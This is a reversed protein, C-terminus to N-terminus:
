AAPRLASVNPIGAAKAAGVPIWSEGHELINVIQQAATGDGFLERPKAMRHYLTDDEMLQIARSVITEMETGVLMAAGADVAERRDTVNRLILAPKGLWTLEESLGGSDTLAFYSSKAVWILEQYGLPATLSINPVDGLLRHM